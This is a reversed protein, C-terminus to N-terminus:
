PWRTPATTPVTAVLAGLKAPSTSWRQPDAAVAVSVGPRASALVAAPGFTSWDPHAPLV